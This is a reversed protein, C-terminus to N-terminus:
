GPKDQPHHTVALGRAEYARWRRRAAQRDADDAGVLEIVRAFRDAEPADDPGLNVLVDAAPPLAGADALWIPTPALAESPAQGARLRAHPIFEQPDFTWLASDLRALLGSDGTVTVRAQQRWAKRLLRCAYGLKDPVGTHFAVEPM